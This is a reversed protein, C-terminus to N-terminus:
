IGYIHKIVNLDPSVASWDLVNIKNTKFWQMSVEATHCAAKDQVFHRQDSGDFNQKLTHYYNQNSLISIM